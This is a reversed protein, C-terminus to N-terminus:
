RPARGDMSRSVRKRRKVCSRLTNWTQESPTSFTSLSRHGRILQRRVSHSVTPRVMSTSHVAAFNMVLMRTGLSQLSADQAERMELLWTLYDNPKDPYGYGEKEAKLKAQRELIIPDLLTRYYKIKKPM